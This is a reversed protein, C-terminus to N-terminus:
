QDSLYDIAIKPVILGLSMALVVEVAIVGDAITGGLLDSTARATDAIQVLGSVMRFVYVGPIMSVM